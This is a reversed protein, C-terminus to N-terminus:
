VAGADASLHYTVNGRAPPTDTVTFNGQDDSMVPMGVPTATGASDDRTTTVTVPYTTAGTVQGTIDLSKGVTPDATTVKATMSEDVATAPAATLSLAAAAAVGVVAGRLFM